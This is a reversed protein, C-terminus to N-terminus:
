ELKEFSVFMGLMCLGVCYSIVLTNWGVLASTDCSCIVDISLTNEVNSLTNSKTEYNCM